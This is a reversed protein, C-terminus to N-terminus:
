YTLNRIMIKQRIFSPMPHTELTYDVPNEGINPLYSKLDTWNTGNLSEKEQLQTFYDTAKQQYASQANYDLLLKCSPKVTLKLKNLLWRTTTANFTLTLTVIGGTLFLIQHRVEESITPTYFDLLTRTLGLAGGLGGGSLVLTEKFSIGYQRKRMIPFFLWIMLTRIVVIGIYVIFLIGFDSWAFECKMAILIGVIIFILTNAM